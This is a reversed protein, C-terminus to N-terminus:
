SSALSDKFLLLNELLSKYNALPLRREGPQTLSLRFIWEALREVNELSVSPLLPTVLLVRNGLEGVGLTIARAIVKYPETKLPFPLSAQNDALFGALKSAVAHENKDLAAEIPVFIAKVMDQTRPQIPTDLFIEALEYIGLYRNAAELCSIATPNTVNRALEPVIDLFVREFRGSAFILAELFLLGHVLELVQPISGQNKLYGDWIPEWVVKQSDQSLVFRAVRIHARSYPQQSSVIETKIIEEKGKPNLIRIQEGRVLVSM